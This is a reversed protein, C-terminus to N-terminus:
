ILSFDIIGGMSQGTLYLKNTDINYKKSVIDIINVIQAAQSGEKTVDNGSETFGIVLFFSPNNKMNDSSIWNTPCEGTAYSAVGSGVYTADGIYTIM